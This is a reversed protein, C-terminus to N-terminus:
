PMCVLDRDLQYYVAACFDTICEGGSLAHNKSNSELANCKAWCDQERDEPLADSEILQECQNLAQQKPAPGDWTITEVCVPCDTLPVCADGVGDGNSDQQDANAVSPCNDADGCLGDQDADNSPDAPCPDQSDCIGDGDADNLPDEPCPDLADCVGDGDVDLFAHTVEGTSPDCSDATCADGDDTDIPAHRAGTLPDCSDVTCAKGDDIPVAAHLIDGTKPDCSDVTCVDGDDVRVPAHAPGSDPDCADVTCANGDDIDIPAHSVEGTDPDCSDDTCVDGDDLPANSCLFPPISPFDFPLIDAPVPLGAPEIAGPDTDGRIALCQPHGLDLAAGTFLNACFLEGNFIGLLVDFDEEWVNIGQFGEGAANATKVWGDGLAEYTVLAHSAETGLVGDGPCGFFTESSQFAEPSIFDYRVAAYCGDEAGGMLIRIEGKGKNELSPPFEFVASLARQFLGGEKLWLRMCIKGGASHGPCGPTKGTGLFDFDGFDIYAEGAPFSLVADPAESAPIVLGAFLSLIADIRDFGAQATSSIATIEDSFEGGAEITKLGAERPVARAGSTSSALAAPGASPPLTERIDITVSEPLTLNTPM